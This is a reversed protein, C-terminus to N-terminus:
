DTCVNSRCILAGCCQVGGGCARGRGACGGGDCVRNGPSVERCTATGCCPRGTGCRGGAPACDVWADCIGRLCKLGGCCGAHSACSGGLQACAPKEDKDDPTDMDCAAFAGVSFAGLILGLWFGPREMWQVM